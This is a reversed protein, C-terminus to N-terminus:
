SAACTERKRLNMHVMFGTHKSLFRHLFLPIRFPLARAPFFNLFVAEIEFYPEVMRTMEDISYCKGIPNDAGDYLRTIESVDQQAFIGERGRGKLAAGFFSFVKGFYKLLNWHRLFINKYYVSISASGGHELVRAIERVTAETDPTHHIVGQCNVHAFFSDDYTMCEANQLSLTASLGYLELRKEVNRLATETLDAAYVQEYAGRKLIEITWFGIGCGLDLVRKNKELKPFFLTEDFSDAFVDKLYVERHEEFFEKTGAPYRSEGTFLPHKEWFGKVDEITKQNNTM